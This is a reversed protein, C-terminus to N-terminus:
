ESAETAKTPPLRIGGPSVIRQLRRLEANGDHHTRVVGVEAGDGLIQQGMLGEADGGPFFQGRDQDAAGPGLAALAM